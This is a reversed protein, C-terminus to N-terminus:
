CFCLLNCGCVGLGLGVSLGQQKTPQNSFTGIHKREGKLRNPVPMVLDSVAVGKVRSRLCDLEKGYRKQLMLQCRM